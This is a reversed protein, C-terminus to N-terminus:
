GFHELFHLGGDAKEGALSVGPESTVSRSTFSPAMSWLMSMGSSPTNTSASAPAVAANVHSQLTGPWWSAPISAPPVIPPQTEIPCADSVPGPVTVPWDDSETMSILPNMASAASTSDRSM